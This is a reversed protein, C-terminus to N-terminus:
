VTRSWHSGASACNDATYFSFEGNLGLAIDSAVIKRALPNARSSSQFGPYGFKSGALYAHLFQGLCVFGGTHFQAIVPSAPYCFIKGGNNSLDIIVQKVGAAKFADIASVTDTQFGNFDDPEFSGVFM